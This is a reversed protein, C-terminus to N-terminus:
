AEGIDIVTAVTADGGSDPIIFVGPINKGTFPDMLQKYHDACEINYLRLADMINNARVQSNRLGEAKRGSDTVFLFNRM